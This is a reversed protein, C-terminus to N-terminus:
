KKTKYYEEIQKQYLAFSKKADEPASAKIEFEFEDNVIKVEYWNKNTRWYSEFKRMM